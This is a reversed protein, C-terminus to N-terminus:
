TFHQSARHLSVFWEHVALDLSYLKRRERYQRMNVCFCSRIYWWISNSVKCKTNWINVM